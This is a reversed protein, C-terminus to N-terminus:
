YQYLNSSFLYPRVGVTRLYMQGHLLYPHIGVNFVGSANLARSTQTVCSNFCLNYKGSPNWNSIRTSNVGDITLADWKMKSASIAGREYNNTGNVSKTYRQIRQNPGWDVYTNGKGDGLQSHGIRDKVYIPNGNVDNEKSFLPDNETRLEVSGPKFGALVDAINAMAGLGYGINELTSNGAKGLYGFEGAEFNYSAIGFSLSVDNKGNTVISMGYSNVNSGTFISATNAFPIGSTAVTYSLYGSVGGVIAGGVMYGWTNGSTYDWDLPNYDNNAMSGGVYAGAAAGIIIPAWVIEGSPDTYKLPNNLVYSYRNYNVLSGADQVFNDPSMMMGITPDYIRGNMNIVNFGDFLHEHTTYGRDFLRDLTLANYTWDEPNRRRGWADFSCEEVLEGEENTISLISGLYDKHLYYLQGEDNDDMVYIAVVGDGGSIFHLRRRGKISHDEIEYDGGVYIRSYYFSEEAEVSMVKREQDPGYIFDSTYVDESIHSIKNFATYEVVQIFEPISGLNDNIESVQNNANNYNYNGVDDKSTIKGQHYAIENVGTNPGVIETLQDLGDYDFSETLNHIHDKRWQLNGSKAEFLFELDQVDGTVITHPQHYQDFTKTTTLGNGLSYKTLQGMANGEDASWIYGGGSSKKVEMLYGNGDLLNKIEFGSPYTISTPTSQSGYGYQFSYDVGDIREKRESLRGYSDYYYQFEIGSPSSAMSIQGKSNPGNQGYNYGYIGEPGTKTAIRGINDYTLQWLKGNEEQEIMEGFGNYTYTIQGADADDLQAQKGYIDYTQVVTNAGATITIVSNVATQSYSHTIIDGNDDVSLIKGEADITTKKYKGSQQNIVTRNNDTYVYTFSTAPSSTHWLRNFNDYDQTVWVVAGNEKYPESKKVLRGKADYEIDIIIKENNLGFTVERLVQSASNYFMYQDPSGESYKTEQYFLSNSPAEDNGAAWYTKYITIIGTPSISKCVEGNGNYEFVTRNGLIGEEQIPKDFLQNFMYEKEQGINNTEKIMQTTGAKYDFAGARTMSQSSKTVGTLNGYSDYASSVTVAKPLGFFSIDDKVKGTSSFYTYKQQVSQDPFGPLTKTVTTLEPFSPYWVGAASTYTIAKSTKECISTFSNDDYTINEILSPNFDQDYAKIEVTSSINKIYDVKTTRYNQLVRSKTPNPLANFHTIDVYSNFSETKYLITSNYKLTSTKPLLNEGVFQGETTQSFDTLSNHVELTKFGQFGLGTGHFVPDTYDYTEIESHAGVFSMVKTKVLQRPWIRVSHPYSFTASRLPLFGQSGSYPSFFEYNFTTINGFGDRVNKLFSTNNRGFDLLKSNTSNIPNYVMIDAAGNGDFDGLHHTRDLWYLGSNSTSFRRGYFGFSTSKDNIKYYVTCHRTSGDNRLEMVDSLGDGDFDSVKYIYEDDESPQNWISLSYSALDFPNNNHGTSFLLQWFHSSSNYRLVDTKGDGNFEGFWIKYGKHVQSTGFLPVFKCQGNGNNNAYDVEIEYFYTQNDVLAVEPFGNGNVDTVYITDANTSQQGYPKFTSAPSGSSGPTWWTLIEYQVSQWKTVFVNTVQEYVPSQSTMKMERSCLLDDLGDKNFDAVTLQIHGKVENATNYYIEKNIPSDFNNIMPNFEFFQLLYKGNASGKRVIVLDGYGDGNFDGTAKNFIPRRVCEGASEGSEFENFVTFKQFSGSGNNIYADGRFYYYQSGVASLGVWCEDVESRDHFSFFDTRGDGNIEASMLVGELSSAQVSSLSRDDSGFEFQTANVEEGKTNYLKVGRLVSNTTHAYDMKYEKLLRERHYIAIGTLLFRKKIKKGEEYVQLEDERKDYNFVIETYAALGNENGNYSIKKLYAAGEDHIYEYQIFNGFLDKIEDILWTSIMDPNNVEVRSNNGSGFKIKQGSNTEVIFRRPGYVTSEHSSIKVFSETFTGYEAADSGNNGTKVILRKGNFYFADEATYEVNDAQGDHYVTKGGRTIASLGNLSFGDGLLGLGSASNYSLSIEPKLGNLGSPLAIPITYISAGTGSVLGHGAISGVNLDTNLSTIYPEANQYNIEGPTINTGVLTPEIKATSTVGTAVAMKSGPWFTIRNGARVDQPLNQPLSNRIEVYDQAILSQNILLPLLLAFLKKKM